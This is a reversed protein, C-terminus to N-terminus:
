DPPRWSNMGRPMYKDVEFSPLREPRDYRLQDGHILPDVRAAEARIWSAWEQAQSRQDEGPLDAVRLEIAHAYERLRDARELAKIQTTLRDRNVSDLYEARAQPVSEEWLRRRERQEHDATQQRRNVEEAWEEAAELAQPLRSELTWRRRDAWFQPKSSGNEMTLALRGSWQEVDQLPARQWDYRVKQREEEPVALARDKEEYMRFLVDVSGIRITLAPGSEDEPGRCAYGRRGAEEVLAQVILLARERSAASVALAGPRRKLAPIAPISPDLVDPVPVPAPGADDAPEDALSIVLDGRDRGRYTVRKGPPLDAATIAALARRYAARLPPAPDPVTFLGGGADLADLVDQKTVQITSSRPPGGEAPGKPRVGDAAPPRPGSHRPEQRGQELYAQGADTITATWTPGHGRIKVLGRSALARASLRHAYDPWERDPCGAGIWTLVDLQADTLKKETAM